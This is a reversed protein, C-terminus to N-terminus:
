LRRKLEKPLPETGTVEIFVPEEMRCSPCTKNEKWWASICDFCFYQKCCVMILMNKFDDEYCISCYDEPKYKALETVVKINKDYYTKDSFIVSRIHSNNQSHLNERPPPRTIEELLSEISFNETEDIDFNNNIGFDTENIIHNRDNNRNNNRNNNRSNTKKNQKERIKRIKEEELKRKREQERDEKMQKSVEAIRKREEEEITRIRTQRINWLNNKRRARIRPDFLINQSAPIYYGKEVNYHTM